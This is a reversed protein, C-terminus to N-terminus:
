AYLKHTQALRVRPMAMRPWQRRVIVIQKRYNNTCIARVNARKM